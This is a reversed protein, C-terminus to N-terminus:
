YEAAAQSSACVTHNITTYNCSKLLEGRLKSAHTQVGTLLQAQAGVTRALCSCAFALTLAFWQFMVHVCCSSAGPVSSCELFWLDRVHGRCGGSGMRVLWLTGRLVWLVWEGRDVCLWHWVSGFSSHDSGPYFCRWAKILGLVHQVQISIGGFLCVGNTEPPM